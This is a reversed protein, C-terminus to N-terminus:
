VSAGHGHHEPFNAHMRQHCKPCLWVVDLPKQYDNHHAHVQECGCFLCPEKELKGDRLANGVKTQAKYAIPNKQRWIKAGNQLRKRRDENEQYRKREYESYQDYRKKRNERVALKICEKCSGFLGDKNRKCAYFESNDKTAKCKKCSKM